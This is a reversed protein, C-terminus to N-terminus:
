GFTTMVLYMFLNAEKSGGDLYFEVENDDNIFQLM